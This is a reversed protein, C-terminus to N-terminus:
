ELRAFAYRGKINANFFKGLSAAFAWYHVVDVPVNYYEYSHGSPFTVRVTQTQEDYLLRKVASSDIFGYSLMAM